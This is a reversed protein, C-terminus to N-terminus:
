QISDHSVVGRNQSAARSAARHGRCRTYRVRVRVPDAAVPGDAVMAPENDQEACALCSLGVLVILLLRARTGKPMM